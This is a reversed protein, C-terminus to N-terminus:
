YPYYRRRCRLVPRKLSLVNESTREFRKFLSLDSLIAGAVDNYKTRLNKNECEGLSKSELNRTSELRKRSQLNNSYEAPNLPVLGLYGIKYSMIANHEISDKSSQPGPPKPNTSEEPFQKTKITNYNKHHRKYETEDDEKHQKLKKHFKKPNLDSLLGVNSM